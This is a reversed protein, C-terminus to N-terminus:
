ISSILKDLDEDSLGTTLKVIDRSVDNKMLQKAVEVKALYEDQQRGQQQSQELGKQLGKQELQQAITM